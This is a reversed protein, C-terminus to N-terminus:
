GWKLVNSLSVKNDEVPGAVGIVAVEPYKEAPIDSLFDRIAQEFNDKETV